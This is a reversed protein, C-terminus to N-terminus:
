CLYARGAFLSRHQRGGSNVQYMLDSYHRRFLSAAQEDWLVESNERPASQVMSMLESVAREVEM